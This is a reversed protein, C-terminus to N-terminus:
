AVRGATLAVPPQPAGGAVDVRWGASAGSVLQAGTRGGSTSVEFVAAPAGGPAPVRVRTTLGDSPSFVRLQVDDNWAYEPRDDVAGVPIVSGPRALLPVSGFGHVQTVWRGGTLEEGTTFDTWTGEPLYFTVSGDASLVPAVLLDPGLMYQRDCFAATPDEPFEVVMPRMMPVGDSAAEEAVGLLYPMLSMKLKTFHRLVDVAEEDFLWPVRYSGSGHLRSHSSLLGFAIWRKFVAPDPLGEFGGIDHSWYGFGSSALSLGGRLSEAMAAFTSECDGGWHVPFQQGGATAARAFVVAEGEGREERLLGFVAENYLHAYHNHMKQPDSGDHWVVDTPVREGFDTKFADVGMELLVQLKGRYWAVADPNTFDVLAMGAQWMDWQWVGGDPRKVLYGRERGEDFLHSRQAIYPNIWASIRLGKAKLRSLMGEPDPFTAPDWVFDCWHFQRMWFCDFHFVSLPLDREAMGDVFSTVTEEDYETTFSTSLWLGMSWAPVRAPRGTLATYRRLVDKPTPGHIVYYTLRQGEVSFQTRSVVESGIEFSVREPHDVFVGYGADTLYFPVNKYAQESCTGGDENWVDVAQGNKVFAGFREGLGYVHEGIAQELQEHVFTRGEADTIVGVSREGSGTLKRGGARFQVSWPGRRAVHVSLAGSTLVAEEEGVEVDVDVPQHALAFRPGRELGGRFHEITVGIVDPAPSSYTVTVVPLNLTDGRGALAKTPAHVTLTRGDTVVEEVGKPRLASLGKRLQWYGDTFKM